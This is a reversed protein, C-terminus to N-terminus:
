RAWRAGAKARYAQYEDMTMRAPDVSTSRGQAASTRAPTPAQTTRVAPAAPAQAATSSALSAELRGIERAAQMPPMQNLRTLAQPNRAFHYALAPGHESEVINDAVHRAIPVDSAGVVQDYDPMTQRAQTQREVWTTERADRQTAQARQELLRAAAQEAKWDTLAEVFEGYDNFKDPTPKEVPKGAPDGNKGEAVARWYQAEREAERRARTLEDIRPQVGKFRGREDRDRQADGDAENKADQGEAGAAQDQPADANPSFGEAPAAPPTPAAPTPENTPQETIQEQVSM